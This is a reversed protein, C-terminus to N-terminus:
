LEAAHIPFFWPNRKCFSGVDRLQGEVSVASLGLGHSPSKRRNRKCMPRWNLSSSCIRGAMLLAHVPVTSSSTPRLTVQVVFIRTGSSALPNRQMKNSCANILSTCTLYNQLDNGRDEERSPRSNYLNELRAASFTLHMSSGIPLTHILGATHLSDKFRPAASSLESSSCASKCRRAIM